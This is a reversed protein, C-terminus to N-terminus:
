RDSLWQTDLSPPPVTLQYPANFYHQQETSRHVIEGDRVVLFGSDGLNASYITREERHLSVICATSSGPIPKFPHCIVGVVPFFYKFNALLHVFSFYLRIMGKLGCSNSLFHMIGNANCYCEALAYFSSSPFMIIQCFLM